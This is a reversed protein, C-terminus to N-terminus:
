VGHVRRCAGMALSGSAGEPATIPPHVQLVRSAAAVHGLPHTTLVRELEGKTARSGARAMGTHRDSRSVTKMLAPMGPAARPALFSPASLM